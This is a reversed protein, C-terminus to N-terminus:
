QTYSYNGGLVPRYGTEDGIRDLFDPWSEHGQFGPEPNRSWHKLITGDPAVTHLQYSGSTDDARVEILYEIDGHERAIDRYVDFAREKRTYAYLLYDFSEHPHKEGTIERLFLDPPKWEGNYAINLATWSSM